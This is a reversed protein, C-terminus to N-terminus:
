FPNTQAAPVRSHFETYSLGTFPGVTSRSDPINLFVKSNYLNILNDMVRLTIRIDTDVGLLSPNQIYPLINKLSSIAIQLEEIRGLPGLTPSAVEKELFSKQKEWEIILVKAHLCSYIPYTHFSGTKAELKRVRPALSDEYHIYALQKQYEAVKSGIEILRAILAFSAYSEEAKSRVFRANKVRPTLTIAQSTFINVFNM